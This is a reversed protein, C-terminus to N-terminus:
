AFENIIHSRTTFNVLYRNAMDITAQTNVLVEDKTKGQPMLYTRYNLSNSNVHDLFEKIMYQEWTPDFVVKFFVNPSVSVETFTSVAETLDNFTDLKPSYIFKVFPLTELKTKRILGVLNFGNTEVNAFQYHLNNLLTLTKKLNDGYTPEGGTVMLGARENDLDSQIKSLELPTESALTIISRTDCWECRRNCGKFRVLQCRKGSDPGEGQFTSIYEVVNVEKEM